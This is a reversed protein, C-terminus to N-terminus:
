AFREKTAFCVSVSGFCVVRVLKVRVIVVQNKIPEM